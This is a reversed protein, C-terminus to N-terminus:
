DMMYIRSKIDNVMWNIGDLLGEGTMASCPMLNWHRGKACDSTDLEL